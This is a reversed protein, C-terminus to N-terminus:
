YIKQEKDFLRISQEFLIRHTYSGLAITSDMIKLVLGFIKRIFIKVAKLDPLSMIKVFQTSLDTIQDVVKLIQPQTQTTAVKELHDQYAGMTSVVEKSAPSLNSSLNEEINIEQFIDHMFAQEVTLYQLTPSQPFERLMNNGLNTPCGLGAVFM